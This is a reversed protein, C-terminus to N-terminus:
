MGACSTVPQPARAWACAHLACARSARALLIRLDCFAQVLSRRPGNATLSIM